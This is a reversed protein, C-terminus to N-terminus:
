PELGRPYNISPVLCWTEFRKGISKELDDDKKECGQSYSACQCRALRLHSFTITIHLLRCSVNTEGQVFDLDWLKHVFGGFLHLCLLRITNSVTTNQSPFIRLYDSRWLSTQKLCFVRSDDRRPETEFRGKTFGLFNGHPLCKTWNKRELNPMPTRLRRQPPLDGNSGPLCSIDINYSIYQQLPLSLIVRQHCHTIYHLTAELILINEEFKCTKHKMMIEADNLCYVLTAKWEYNQILINSNTMRNWTQKTWWSQIWLKYKFPPNIPEDCLYGLQQHKKRTQSETFVLRSM